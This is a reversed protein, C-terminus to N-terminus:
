WDTIWKPRAYKKKRPSRGPLAGLGEAGSDIM